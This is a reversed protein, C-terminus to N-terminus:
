GQMVSTRGTRLIASCHLTKQLEVSKTGNLFTKGHVNIEIIEIRLKKQTNLLVDYQFIDM